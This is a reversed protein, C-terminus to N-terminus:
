RSDGGRLPVSLPSIPFRSVPFSSRPPSFASASASASHPNIITSKQNNIAEGGVEGAGHEVGQARARAEGVGHPRDAPQGRGAVPEDEGVVAGVVPAGAPRAGEFLLALLAGAVAARLFAVPCVGSASRVRVPGFGSRFRVVGPGSSLLSSYVEPGSFCV